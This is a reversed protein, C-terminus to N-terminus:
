HSLSEVMVLTFGYPNSNGHLLLICKKFKSSFMYINILRMQGVFTGRSSIIHWIYYYYKSICSYLLRDQNCGELNVIHRHRHTHTNPISFFKLWVFPLKYQVTTVSLYEKSDSCKTPSLRPLHLHLCTTITDNFADLLIHLSHGSFHM